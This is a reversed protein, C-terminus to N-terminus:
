SNDKLSLSLRILMRNGPVSFRGTKYIANRNPAEFDEISIKADPTLCEAHYIFGQFHVEFGHECLKIESSDRGNTKLLPIRFELAQNQVQIAEIEVGERSVDYLESVRGSDCDYDIKFRIRNENEELVKCTAHLRDGNLDALWIRNWGPGIAINAPAPPIATLFGPTATIPASLALEAPFGAKHVRGLGSADYTLNANSDIEIHYGGCAAFVKHFSDETTFIYGGCEAPCKSEKINRDALLSAFGLQSAILLSYAGYFGYGKQRGHQTESPFLNKTFYIPTECLYKEISNVALSAARKFAGAMLLDGKGAWRAAEFECILAFTAENFNQQNSRGGFPCEGTPSQYLLQAMGGLKLTEDLAEFGKGRYGAWLALSLNMRSVMDYTMPSHPDNYMGNKDFFTSQQRIYRAIFKSNDALELKQKLAEGAVAFTCYNQLNSEPCNTYTRGYATEPDYDALLHKWHRALEPSVEDKLAAYAMCAEKVIFEGWETKRLFLDELAPTLARACSDALHRSRGQLMLLGLAGVYRATVTNTEKKEYPDIIRGSEDQWNVAENVIHEALDLYRSTAAPTTQGRPGTGKLAQRVKEEVRTM